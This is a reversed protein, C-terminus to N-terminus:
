EQGNRHPDCQHRNNVMWQIPKYINEVPPSPTKMSRNAMSKNERRHEVTKHRTAQVYGATNQRKTERIDGETLLRHLRRSAKQYAMSCDDQARTLADIFETNSPDCKLLDLRAEGVANKYFKIDRFAEREEATQILRSNDLVDEVTRNCIYLKKQFM